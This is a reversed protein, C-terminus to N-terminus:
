DTAPEEFVLEEYTNSFHSFVLGAANVKSVSYGGATLLFDVDSIDYGYFEKIEEGEPVYNLFLMYRQGGNELDISPENTGVFDVYNNRADEQSIRELGFKVINERTLISMYEALTAKTGRHLVSIVTGSELEGKIVEQVEFTSVTQPVGQLPDIYARVEGKYNVILVVDSHEFMADPTPTYTFDVTYEVTHLKIETVSYKSLTGNIGNHPETVKNTANCAVLSLALTLALALAVIVAILSRIKKM